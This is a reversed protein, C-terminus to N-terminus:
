VTWQTSYVKPPGAISDVEGRRHPQMAGQGASLRSGSLLRRRATRYGAQPLEGLVCVCVCLKTTGGGRRCRDTFSHMM